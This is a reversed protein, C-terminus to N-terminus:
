AVVAAGSMALGRAVLAKGDERYCQIMGITRVLGQHLSRAVAPVLGQLQAFSMAEAIRLDRHDCRGARDAQHHVTVGRTDLWVEGQHFELLERPAAVELNDVARDGRSQSLKAIALRLDLCDHAVCHPMPRQCP